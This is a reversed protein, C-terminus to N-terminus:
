KGLVVQVARNSNQIERGFDKALMVFPKLSMPTGMSMKTFKTLVLNLASQDIENMVDKPDLSPM